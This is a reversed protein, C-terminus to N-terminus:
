QSNASTKSNYLKGQNDHQKWIKMVINQLEKGIDNEVDDIYPAGQKDVFFKVDLLLGILRAYIRCFERSDQFRKYICLNYL